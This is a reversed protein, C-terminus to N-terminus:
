PEQRVFKIRAGDYKFTFFTGKQYMHYSAESIQKSYSEYEYADYYLVAAWYYVGNLSSASLTATYTQSENYTVTHSKSTSYSFSMSPVVTMVDLPIQLECGLSASFAETTTASWSKGQTASITIPFTNNRRTEDDLLFETTLKKWDCSYSLNKNADYIKHYWLTGGSYKTQTTEKLQRNTESHYYPLFHGECTYALCSSVSLILALVLCCLYKSLRKM